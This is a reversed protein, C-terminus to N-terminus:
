FVNLVADSLDGSGDDKSRHCNYRWRLILTLTLMLKCLCKCVFREIWEINHFIAM